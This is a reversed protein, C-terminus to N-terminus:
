RAKLIRQWITGGFKRWGLYFYLVIIAFLVLAPLGTLHFGLGTSHFGQNTTEGTTTQGTFKAIIYGVVLFVTLFDLVGALGRRWFPKLTMVPANPQDSM